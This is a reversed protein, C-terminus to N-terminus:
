NDDGEVMGAGAAAMVALVVALRLGAVEGDEAPPVVIVTGMRVTGGVM